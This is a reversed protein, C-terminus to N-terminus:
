DSKFWEKISNFIAEKSLLSHLCTLKSIHPESLHDLEILWIRNLKTWFNLVNTDGLHHSSSGNQYRKQTRQFQWNIIKIHGFVCNLKNIHDEQSWILFRQKLCLLCSAIVDRAFCLLISLKQKQKPFYYVVNKNQSSELPNLM